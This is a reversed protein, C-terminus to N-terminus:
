PSLPHTYQLTQTYAGGLLKKVLESINKLSPTFIMGCSPVLCKYKIEQKRFILKVALDVEPTAAIHLTTDQITTQQHM